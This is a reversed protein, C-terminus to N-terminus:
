GSGPSAAPRGPAGALGGGLRGVAAAADAVADLGPSVSAEIAAWYPVVTRSRWAQFPRRPVRM